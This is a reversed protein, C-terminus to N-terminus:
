HRWSFNIEDCSMRRIFTKKRDWCCRMEYIFKTQSTDHYPHVGFVATMKCTDWSDLIFHFNLLMVDNNVTTLCHHFFNISTRINKLEHIHMIVDWSLFLFLSRFDSRKSRAQSVNHWQSKRQKRHIKQHAFRLFFLKFKERIESSKEYGKIKCLMAFTWTFFIYLQFCCMWAGEFM